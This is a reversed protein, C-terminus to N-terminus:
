LGQLTEKETVAIFCKAKGEQALLAAMKYTSLQSKVHAMRIPLM